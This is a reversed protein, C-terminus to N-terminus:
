QSSVYFMYIRVYFKTSCITCVMWDENTRQAVFDRWADKGVFAYNNPPKRLKKKEGVFPM